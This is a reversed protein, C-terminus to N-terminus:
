TVTWNDDRRKWGEHFHEPMGDREPYQDLRMLFIDHQPEQEDTYVKDTAFRPPQGRVGTLRGIRWEQEVKTCIVVLKGGHAAPQMARMRVLVKALDMYELIGGWPEIASGPRETRVISSGPVGKMHDTCVRHEAIMRERKESGPPPIPYM